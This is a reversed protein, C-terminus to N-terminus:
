SLNWSLYPDQLKKYTLKEIEALINEPILSDTILKFKNAMEKNSTNICKKLMEVDYGFCYHNDGNYEWFKYFRQETIFDVVFETLDYIISALDPSSIWFNSLTTYEVGFNCFRFSGAQGYINKRELSTSDHDLYMAPIAVFLDMMRIFSLAHMENLLIENGIHLHGGACRFPTKFQNYGDYFDVINKPMEQASLSYANIIPNCNAIKAQPNNLIQAPYDASSRILFKCPNIKESLFLLGNKINQLFEEKSYSPKIGIEALVNDHYIRNGNKVLHNNKEPLIGIASKLEGHYSLMFEPDGGLSFNM